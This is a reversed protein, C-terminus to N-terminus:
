VFAQLVVDIAPRPRACATASTSTCCTGVYRGFQVICRTTRLRAARPVARGDGADRRHPLFLDAPDGTLRSLFFVLVLLAVLSFLSQISRRFISYGM